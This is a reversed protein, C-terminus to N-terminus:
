LTEFIEVGRTFILRRLLLTVAVLAVAAIALTVFCPLSALAFGLAGVVLAVGWGSFIVVSPAFGQKVPVTENTWDLIPLKLGVILGFAASAAAYDKVHWAIQASLLRVDIDAGALEAAKGVYKRAESLQGLDLKVRALYVLTDANTASAAYSAELCKEPAEKELEGALLGRGVHLLRAALLESAVHADPVKKGELYESSKSIIEKWVM